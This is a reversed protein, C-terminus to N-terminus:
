NTDKETFKGENGVSKVETSFIVDDMTYIYDGKPASAQDALIVTSSYITALYETPSPMKFGRGYADIRGSTRTSLIDNLADGLLDANKIKVQFKLSRVEPQAQLQAEKQM